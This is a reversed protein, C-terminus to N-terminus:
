VDARAQSLPKGVDRAELQALREAQDLVAQGIRALLRGREFAALKGWDGALAGRAAAVAADVDAASGAPITGIVEGFSPDEVPLSAAGAAWRGGIFLGQRAFELDMTARRGPRAAGM